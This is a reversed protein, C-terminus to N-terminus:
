YQLDEIAIIKFRSDFIFDKNFKWLAVETVNLSTCRGRTQLDQQHVIQVQLVNLLAESVSVRPRFPLGVLGVPLQVSGIRSPHLDLELLKFM